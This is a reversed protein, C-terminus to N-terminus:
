VHGRVRGRGGLADDGAADDGSVSGKLGFEYAAVSAASNRVDTVMGAKGKGFFHAAVAITGARGLIPITPISTGSKDIFGLIFGGVILGMLTKESSAKGRGRRGGKHHKTTKAAVPRVVITQTRTHTKPHVVTTKTAM